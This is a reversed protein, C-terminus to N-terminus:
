IEFDTEYRCLYDFVGAGGFECGGGGAYLIVFIGVWVLAIIGRVM